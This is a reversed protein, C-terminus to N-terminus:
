KRTYLYWSVKRLKSNVTILTVKTKKKKITFFKRSTFVIFM